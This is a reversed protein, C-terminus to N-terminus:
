SALSTIVWTDGRKELTIVRPSASHQESGVQPVAERKELGRVTAASAGPALEIKQIEFVLRQSRLQEFAARVRAKDVSPYVRAYLDADLTSQAKEYRRIADRIREEDTSRESGRPPEPAAPAATLVRVPAPAATAQPAPIAPPERRPATEPSAAIRESPTARPPPHRRAWQESKGFSDRAAESAARAAAYDENAFLDRAEREKGRGFEYLAAAQEPAREREARQRAAASLARSGEAQRRSRGPDPTAPPIQSDQATLQAESPPAVAPVVATPEPASTTAEPARAPPLGSPM